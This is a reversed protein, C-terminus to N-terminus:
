HQIHRVIISVGRQVPGRFFVLDFTNLKKKAFSGVWVESVAVHHRRKVYGHLAQVVLHHLYPEQRGRTLARCLVWTGHDRGSGSRGPSHFRPVIINTKSQVLRHHKIITKDYKIYWRKRLPKIYKLKKLGWSFFCFMTTLSNNDGNWLQPFQPVSLFFYNVQHQM